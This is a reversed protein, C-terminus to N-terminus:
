LCELLKEFQMGRSAKILIFKNTIKNKCMYEKLEDTTLFVRANIPLTEKKSATYFEKGALFIQAQMFHQKLHQIIAIHEKQSHEGLEFMDGLIIVKNSENTLVPIKQNDHTIATYNYINKEKFFELAALMSTPNANYADLIIKNYQNTNEIWQMRNKDPIYNEIAENIKSEEVGFYHGICVASLANIFNHKALLRTKVILPKDTNKFQYSTWKFRVFIDHYNEIYQGIIIKKEQDLLFYKSLDTYLIFNNNREIETYGMNFKSLIDMLDSNDLHLFIKGNHNLLYEYLEGNTKKVQEIDGFGELHEKGISTIIGYNPEAIECLERIEDPHNAGMEIVALENDKKLQLLTLPLGIHNNFNGPTSLVNYKKSLVGSILEKTTTKGNSGTIAIVPINFQRRHHLALNQLTKLVDDVLVCRNDKSAIEPNDVVAYACGKQLAELAFKNGDFNNGKLAFFISHEKIKRTDTCVQQHCELFLSYLKEINNM